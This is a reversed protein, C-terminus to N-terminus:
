NSQIKICWYAVSSTYDKHNKDLLYKDTLFNMKTDNCSM